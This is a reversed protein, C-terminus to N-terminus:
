QVTYVKPPLQLATWMAKATTQKRVLHLQNDELLLGINAKAKQDKSRWQQTVPDPPEDSV